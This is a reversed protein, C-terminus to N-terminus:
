RRRANWPHTDHHVAAALLLVGLAATTLAWWTPGTDTLALYVAALEIALATTLIAYTLRTPPPRDANTTM